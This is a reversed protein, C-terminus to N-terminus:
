AIEGYHKLVRTVDRQMKRARQRWERPVVDRWVGRVINEPPDAFSTHPAALPWRMRVKGPVLQCVLVWWCLGEPLRGAIAGRRVLDEIEVTWAPRLRFNRRPHQQFFV